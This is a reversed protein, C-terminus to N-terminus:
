RKKRAPEKGEEERRYKPEKGSEKQTIAMFVEELDVPVERFWYLDVGQSLFLRLLAPIKEREGRFEMRLLNDYSRLNTVGPYQSAISRAKEMERVVELEIKYYERIKATIENLNGSAQLKGQHIIGIKDCCAALESLIHSSLLITKGRDRLRRLLIRMEIRAQPDLGSAPEDLLLVSPDHVLTRAVGIKQKMGRSLTGVFYDKMEEAETIALAQDIADRRKRRPIRYAAGFFDLYEWVRMEDYVGFFDPLYGIMKKVARPFRTVDVDGIFAKGRSARLLGALIRITTTKGAGNPGIFGYIEGRPIEMNLDELALVNKYRKSLDQTRIM